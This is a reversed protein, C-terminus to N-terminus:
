LLTAAIMIVQVTYVKWNTQTNQSEPFSPSRCCSLLPFTQFTHEGRRCFAVCFHHQTLWSKLIHKWSQKMKWWTRKKRQKGRRWIYWSIIITHGHLYLFHFLQKLNSLIFILLFIWLIHYSLVHFSLMISKICFWCVLSNILMWPVYYLYLLLPRLQKHYNEGPMCTFLLYM